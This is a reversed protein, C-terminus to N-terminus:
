LEYDEYTQMVEAKTIGLYTMTVAPSSHNLVKSVMEVPVGDSYMAWGRSKRMSHTGLRVRLIDGIEKFAKAVTVRGIPKQMAKSRNAHTQFLYRDTPHEQRRREVLKLVTDNLRLTRAKGTKGEVLRLERRETDLAGYEIALLDSIRLALNVGIRWIDGYVDGKHKRLLHEVTAIEAKTKVAEVEIM